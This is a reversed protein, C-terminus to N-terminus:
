GVREDEVAQDASSPEEGAVTAGRHARRRSRLVLLLGIGIAAVAVPVAVLLWLPPGSSSHPYRGPSVVDALLPLFLM